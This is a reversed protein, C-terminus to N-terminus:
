MHGNRRGGRHRGAEHLDEEDPHARRRRLQMERATACDRRAIRGDQSILRAQAHATADSANLQLDRQEILQREPARARAIGLHFLLEHDDLGDFGGRRAPMARMM